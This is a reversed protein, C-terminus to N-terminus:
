FFFAFYLKSIEPNFNESERKLDINFAYTILKACAGMLILSLCALPLSSDLLGISGLIYGILLSAYSFLPLSKKYNNENM